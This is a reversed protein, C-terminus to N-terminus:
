TSIRRWTPAVHFVAITMCSLHYYLIQANDTAIRGNKGVQLDIQVMEQNTNGVSDYGIYSSIMGYRLRTDPTAEPAILCTTNLTSPASAIM